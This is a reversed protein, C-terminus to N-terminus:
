SVTCRCSVDRRIRYLISAWHCLNRVRRTSVSVVNFGVYFFYLLMLAEGLNSSLLLKSIWMAIIVIFLILQLQICAVLVEVEDGSGYGAKDWVACYAM